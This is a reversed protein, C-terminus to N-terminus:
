LIKFVESGVEQQMWVNYRPLLVAIALLIQFGDYLTYMLIEFHHFMCWPLRSNADSLLMLKGEAHLTM